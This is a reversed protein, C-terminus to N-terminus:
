KEGELVKLIKRLSDLCFGLLIIIAGFTFSFYVMYAKIFKTLEILENM